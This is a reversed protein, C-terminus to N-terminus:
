RVGPLLAMDSKSSDIPSSRISNSVGKGRPARVRVVGAAEELLLGVRDEARCACSRARFAVAMGGGSAGWFKTRPAGGKGPLVVADEEDEEDEEEEEEEEAAVAVEM